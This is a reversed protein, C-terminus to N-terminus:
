TYLASQMVQEQAVDSELMCGSELKIVCPVVIADSSGGQTKACSATIGVLIIVNQWKISVNLETPM